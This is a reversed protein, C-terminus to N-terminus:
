RAAVAWKFNPPSAGYNTIYYESVLSGVYSTAGFVVVDYPKTGAM